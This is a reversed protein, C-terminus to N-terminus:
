IKKPIKSSLLKWNWGDRCMDELSRKPNWNLKSIALSNDAVVSPLDGKRKPGFCYELEIKNVKQFTNILEMVSTGKGTGININCFEPQNKTLYDLAAIHGEAVDMVHIYDRVGTGDKTEWNNGFIELKNKKNKAVNMITPFINSPKGLPNEGILGSSHAGIPNFYRLNAIRWSDKESFFINKLFKEVASKTEGYPNIPNILCTESVLKENSVGYITASSSFVIKKCDFKKMIRVLNITGIVNVDWYEMPNNISDEISKLGAFHIVNDIPQNSNKYNLFIKNLFESDRIDGKFFTLKNGLIKFDRYLYKVSEISDPFSNILSDIVTVNFGKELLSLCTHSGIFGAGGTVLVRPM